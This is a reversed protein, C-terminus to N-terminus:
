YQKALVAGHHYRLYPEFPIRKGTCANNAGLVLLDSRRSRGKTYVANRKAVFHDWDPASHSCYPARATSSFCLIQFLHLTAHSSHRPSRIRHLPDSEHNGYLCQFLFGYDDLTGVSKPLVLSVQRRDVALPLWGHQQRVVPFPRSSSGPRNRNAM